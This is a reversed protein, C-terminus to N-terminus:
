RHFVHFPKNLSHFVRDLLSVEVSLGNKTWSPQDGLSAVLGQWDTVLVELLHPLRAFFTRFPKSGPEKDQELEVPVRSEQRDRITM